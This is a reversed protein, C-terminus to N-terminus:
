KTKQAFILSQYLEAAASDEQELPDEAEPQQQKIPKPAPMTVPATKQKKPKSPQKLLSEAFVDFPNAAPQTEVVVENKNNEVPMTKQTPLPTPLPVDQQLLQYLDFIHEVIDQKPYHANAIWILQRISETRNPQDELWEILKRDKDYLRMQYTELVEKKYAKKLNTLKRLQKLNLQLNSALHMLLKISAPKNTQHKLWDTIQSDTIRLSIYVKQLLTM